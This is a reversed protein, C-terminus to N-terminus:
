ENRPMTAAWEFMKTKHRQPSALSFSFGEWSGMFWGAMSYVCRVSICLSFMYVNKKDLIFLFCVFFFKNYIYINLIMRMFRACRTKHEHPAAADCTGIHYVLHIALNPLQHRQRQRWRLVFVMSIFYYEDQTLYVCFCRGFVLPWLACM